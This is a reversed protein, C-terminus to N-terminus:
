IARGSQASLHAAETFEMYRVGTEFRAMSIDERGLIANIFEEEVRYVAQENVPNAIPSLNLEGRRGGFLNLSSDVFITGESGHIWTQNGSSLGVTESFRMHVQAGNNLEYLIDLHDPMSVSIPNGNADRRTRVHTKTRAIVEDGPGFWRMMSEYTSGLNLVNLGSYESNHRWDLDGNYNAFSRQLRQVEVSLVEGLYNQALLKKLINDIVYSTSTPVLQSVLHPYRRSAVLMQRAEEADNAMRAQCLVHKGSELTAITLDHHMYPWTGILVADIDDDDLLQEWNDYAKPIGFEDAVSQSSALSRNAVAVVECESIRNFGPIQVARTNSGAGIIGVRVRDSSSSLSVGQQAAVTGPVMAAVVPIAATSLFKRRNLRTYVKDDVNKNMPNIGSKM